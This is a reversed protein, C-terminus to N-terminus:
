EKVLGAVVAFQESTGQLVVAHCSPFMTVRAIQVTSHLKKVLEQLQRVSFDPLYLAKIFCTNLECRTSHAAVTSQEPPAYVLVSSRSQGGSKFSGLVSVLKEAIAIQEPTGEVTVTHEPPNQTINTADLILRISNVVDQLEFPTSFTPLYMVKSICTNSACAATRPMKEQGSVAPALFLVALSLAGGVKKSM